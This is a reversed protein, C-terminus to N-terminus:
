CCGGPSLVLENDAMEIAARTSTIDLRINMSEEARYINISVSIVVPWNKKYQIKLKNFSNSLNPPYYNKGLKFNNIKNSHIGPTLKLLLKLKKTLRCMM